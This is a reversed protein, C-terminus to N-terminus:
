ADSKYSHGEFSGYDVTLEEGVGIDRVARDVGHRESSLDQVLTSNASHNLFRADDCCLVYTGLRKDVYGYHLLTERLLPEQNELVDPDLELDLGPTFRWVVTGAPIPEAAVVGLGHIASPAVTVRVL